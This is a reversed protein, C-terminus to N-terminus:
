KSPGKLTKLKEIYEGPLHHEEAGTLIIDLYDTSPRYVGKKIVEYAIVDTVLEEKVLVDVQMQRYVGAKVGEKIDINDLSKKDTEFLVGWTTEGIRRVIDAVGGSRRDSKHTFALCFDKLCAVKPNTLTIKAKNQVCWKELDESNMNSGYAFYLIPESQSM